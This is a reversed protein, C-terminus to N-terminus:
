EKLSFMEMKSIFSSRKCVFSRNKKQKKKKKFFVVKMPDVERDGVFLSKFLGHKQNKYKSWCQRHSLVNCKIHSCSVM